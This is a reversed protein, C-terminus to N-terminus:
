IGWLPNHERMINAIEKLASKEDGRLFEALEKLRRFEEESLFTYLVDSEHIQRGATVGPLSAALQEGFKAEQASEKNKQMSKVETLKKGTRDMLPAGVKLTGQVIEIGAVCPNCQRFICGDLLEIKAPKVLDELQKAEEEQRKQTQWAELDDILRYIIDSTFIQVHETSKEEPINFGLIVAKLPDQEKNSEADMIDKKTIKGVSAKRIGIDKERLLVGLAELSGITDAKIIIGEEDTHLLSDEIETRLENVIRPLDEESPVVKLPMGAVVKDLEPAAIKLGTAATAEKLNKYKSKKDRMEQLPNPELIAR